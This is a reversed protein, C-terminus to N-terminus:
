GYAMDSVHPSRGLRFTRYHLTFDQVIWTILYYFRDQSRAWSM